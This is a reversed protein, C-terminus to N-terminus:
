VDTRDIWEITAFLNPRPQVFVAEVLTAERADEVVEHWPRRVDLPQDLREHGVGMVAGDIIARLTFSLVAQDHDALDNVVEALRDSPWARLNGVTTRLSATLPPLVEQRAGLLTLARRVAVAEGRDPPDGEARLREHAALLVPVAEALGFEGVSWTSWTRVVEDDSGPLDVLAPGAAADGFHDFVEIACLQAVPDLSGVSAALPEVVEVGISVLTSKAEECVEISDSGLLQILRTVGNPVTASDATTPGSGM